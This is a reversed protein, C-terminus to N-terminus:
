IDKCQMTNVCKTTPISLIYPNAYQNLPHLRSSGVTSSTSMNLNGSPPSSVSNMVTTNNLIMTHENLEIHVTITNKTLDKLRPIINKMLYIHVGDITLHTNKTYYHSIIM